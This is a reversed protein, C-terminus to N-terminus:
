LLVGKVEGSEAESKSSASSASLGSLTTTSATNDRGCHGNVQGLGRGRQDPDVVQGTLAPSGAIGHNFGEEANLNPYIFLVRM